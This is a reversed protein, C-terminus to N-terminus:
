PAKKVRDAIAKSVKDEILYTVVGEVLANVEVDIKKLSVNSAKSSGTPFGFMFDKDGVTMSVKVELTASKGDNTCTLSTISIDITFRKSKDNPPKQMTSSNKIAKEAATEIIPVLSKEYKKDFAKVVKVTAVEVSAKASM